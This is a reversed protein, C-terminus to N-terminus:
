IKLWRKRIWLAFLVGMVVGGLLAIPTSWLWHSFWVRSIAVCAMSWLLVAMFVILMARKM